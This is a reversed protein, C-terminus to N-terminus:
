LSFTLQNSDQEYIEKNSKITNCYHHALKVNDWTHTGGKSLPVVHDISPYNSGVIFHGEETLTYDKKNCKGNCIHCKNKERKILVELSIDDHKGNIVERKRRRIEKTKNHHRNACTKSCFKVNKDTKFTKGCKCCTTERTNIEKQVERLRKKLEKQTKSIVKGIVEKTRKNLESKVKRLEKNAIKRQGACNDCIIERKAKFPRTCQAHREQIHGCKRCKSKFNSESDVYESHYEFNPHMKEFRDKFDKEREDYATGRMINKYEETRKWETQCDVSCFRQKNKISRYKVGCIECKHEHRNKYHEYAEKSHRKTRDRVCKKCDGRLKDGRKYFFEATAPYEINCKTCRKM